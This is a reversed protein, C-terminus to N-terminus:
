TYFNEHLDGDFIRNLVRHLEEIGHHEAIKQAEVDEGDVFISVEEGGLRRAQKDLMDVNLSGFDIDKLAKMKIDNCCALEHVLEIFNNM